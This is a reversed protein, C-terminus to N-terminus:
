GPSIQIVIASVMSCMATLMKMIATTKSCDPL